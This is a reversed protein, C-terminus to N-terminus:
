FEFSLVTFVILVGLLFLAMKNFIVTFRRFSTAIHPYLSTVSQFFKV